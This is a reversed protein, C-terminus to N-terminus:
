CKEKDKKMLDIFEYHQITLHTDKRNGRVTLNPEEQGYVWLDEGFNRNIEGQRFPHKVTANEGDPGYSGTGLRFVDEQDLTEDGSDCKHVIDTDRPDYFIRRRCRPCFMVAM